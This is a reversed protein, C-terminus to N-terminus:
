ALMTGFIRFDDPQRKIDVARTLTLNIKESCINNVLSALADFMTGVSMVAGGYAATKAMESVPLCCGLWKAILALPLVVVCSIARAVAELAGLAAIGLYAAEIVLLKVARVVVYDSGQANRWETVAINATVSISNFLGYAIQGGTANTIQATM